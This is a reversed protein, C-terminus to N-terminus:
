ELTKRRFRLCERKLKKPSMLRVLANMQDQPNAEKRNVIQERKEIRQIDSVSFLSTEKFAERQM